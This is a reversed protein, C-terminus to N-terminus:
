EDGAALAISAPPIFPVLPVFRVGLSATNTTKRGFFRTVGGVFRDKLLLQIPRESKLTWKAKNSCDEVSLGNM